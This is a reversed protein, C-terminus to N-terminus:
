ERFARWGVSVADCQFPDTGTWGTVETHLDIEGRAESYSSSTFQGAFRLTSCEWSEEFGPGCSTGEGSFTLGVIPLPPDYTFEWLGTTQLWGNDCSATENSSWVRSIGCGEVV